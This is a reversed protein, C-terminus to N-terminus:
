LLGGERLAEARIEERTRHKPGPKAKLWPGPKRAFAAASAYKGGERTAEDACYAEWAALLDAEGIERVMPALPGYINENEGGFHHKWSTLAATFWTPKLPQPMPPEDYHPQKSPSPSPSATINGDGGVTVNRKANRYRKQRESRLSSQRQVEDHTENRYGESTKVFFSLVKQKVRRFVKEGGAIRSLEMEDLTLLGDHLWLEDIFERYVGREEASMKRYASSTRWRDIWWWAAKM